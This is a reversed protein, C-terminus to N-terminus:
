DFKESQFVNNPQFWIKYPREKPNLGKREMFKKLSKTFLQRDRYWLDDYSSVNFLTAIDNTDDITPINLEEISLCAVDYDVQLGKGFFRKVFKYNNPDVCLMNQEKWDAGFVFRLTEYKLEEEDLGFVFEYGQDWKPLHPSMTFAKMVYIMTVKGEKQEREWKKIYEDYWSYGM